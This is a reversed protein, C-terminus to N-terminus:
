SLKCYIWAVLTEVQAVFYGHKFVLDFWFCSDNEENLKFLFKWYNGM